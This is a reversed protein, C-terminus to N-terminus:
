NSINSYPLLIESINQFLLIIFNFIKFMNGGKIDDCGRQFLSFEAQHSTFLNYTLLIDSHIPKIPEIELSITSGKVFDIKSTM